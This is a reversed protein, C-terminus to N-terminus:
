PFAAQESSLQLDLEKGAGLSCYYKDGTGGFVVIVSICRQRPIQSISFLMKLLKVDQRLRYAKANTELVKWSGARSKSHSDCFDIKCRILLKGASTHSSVPFRGVSALKKTSNWIDPQAESAIYWDKRLASIADSKM